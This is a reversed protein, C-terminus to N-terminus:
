SIAVWDRIAQDYRLSTVPGGGEPIIEVIIDGDINPAAAARAKADGLSPCRVPEQGDITLIILDSM